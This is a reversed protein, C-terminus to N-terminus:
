ERGLSQWIRNLPWHIRTARGVINKRPVPGWHRSDASHRTNDGLVFYEDKGLRIENTPESMRESLVVMLWPHDGQGSSIGKFVAPTTMIRDNVILNLPEIRIREGPLGAVRKIYLKHPRLTAIGDTRFVIIDGRKPDGFMFSVKEVVVRDGRVITPAMSNAGMRFGQISVGFTVAQAVALSLSIGIVAIWGLFGIRRVPRYSQILMVIQLVVCALWLTWGFAYAGFGPIAFIFTLLLYCTCLGFYWKLGAVRKGSLFHASGTLFFGLVVGVWKPYPPKETMNM